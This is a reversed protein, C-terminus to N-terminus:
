YYWCYVSTSSFVLFAIKECIRKLSPQVLGLHSQPNERLTAPRRDTTGCLSCQERSAPTKPHRCQFVYGFTFAGGRAGRLVAKKEEEEAKSGTAGKETAELRSHCGVAEFHSVSQHCQM